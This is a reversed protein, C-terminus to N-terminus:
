TSRRRAGGRARAQAHGLRRDRGAGGAWIEPPRIVTPSSSPSRASSSSTSSRTCERSPVRHARRRSPSSRGCGRRTGKATSRSAARSCSSSCPGSPTSTRAPTSGGVGSRSRRRLGANRGLAGVRDPGRTRGRAQGARLGDYIHRRRGRARRRSSTATCSGPPTSRMWRRQRRRPSTPRARPDLTKTCRVLQRVDPGDVFRMALYAVGEEEGVYHLPIVHRHEISAATRARRRLAGADCQGRAPRARHGEARRRPRARAPAGQSSGWGVAAALAELTSRRAAHRPGHARRIAAGDGRHDRTPSRSRARARRGAAGLGDALRDLGARFADAIQELHEQEVVLPPSVAVSGLLPRVARGGRARRRGGQRGRRARARAGRRRAAVAALLGAAPACRPSRRTTPSRRWRTACRGSSSAGARSSTRASTSTSCRSRPRAAPRTAPTPRATACCRGAPSRSSRRPSGARCSWAASRCTAATVGKAFTIMDPRVDEWREIGFWTGLRGFGCIVSDIVLLVGHEACLDAVGEIYGEARRTARRRRRDGARLLVGGRPRARRAPDRGRAGAALRAAGLLDAAGAPGLQDVNAEIGGISTGFGHTGHYGQTRSILHMREPQGQLVWHRRAIKAATDIADGGGSGLFM